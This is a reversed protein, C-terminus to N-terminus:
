QESKRQKKNLPKKQIFEDQGRHVCSKVVRQYQWARLVQMQDVEKREGLARTCVCGRWERVSTSTYSAKLETYHTRRSQHTHLPLFSASIM